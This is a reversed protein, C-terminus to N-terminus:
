RIRILSARDDVIVDLVVARIGAAPAYDVREHVTPDGLQVSTSIQCADITGCETVRAQAIEYIDGVDRIEDPSGPPVMVQPLSVIVRLGAHPIKPATELMPNPCVMLADPLIFSIM